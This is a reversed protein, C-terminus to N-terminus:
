PQSPFVFYLSSSEGKTVTVEQSQTGLSEHWAAVTYKGPPLDPMRFVGDEGTIAFHSTKLVVFYGQMWPHINCKVPIIEEKEYSYSFAPTGPPELRSWDRNVKAIPHINHAVPDDNSIKIEQGIEVALVRPKYRCGKEAFSVPVAPTLSNETEGASIYVVVNALGNGRGVVVTEDTLPDKARLKLCDPEKGLDLPAKRPPTGKFSVIGILTGSQPGANLVFASCSLVCCGLIFRVWQM